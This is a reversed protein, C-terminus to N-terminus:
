TRKLWEMLAANVLKELHGQEQNLRRVKESVFGFQLGRVEGEGLLAKHVYSSRRSYVSNLFDELQRPLPYQLNREFFMKFKRMADKKLSCSKNADECFGSTYESVMMSEVASVLSLISVTPYSMWNELAFQYSFCANLFKEKQDKRLSFMKKTLHPFDSPLKLSTFGKSLSDFSFSPRQVEFFDGKEAKGDAHFTTELDKEDFDEVPHHTSPGFTMMHGHSQSSLRAWEKTSLVLWAVFAKAIQAGKDMNVFNRRGRESSDVVSKEDLGCFDFELVFNSCGIQQNKETLLCPRLTYGEVVYIGDLRGFFSTDVSFAGHFEPM